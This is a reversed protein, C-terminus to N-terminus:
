NVRRWGNPIAFGKADLAALEEEVIPMVAEIFAAPMEHQPGPNHHEVLNKPHYTGASIGLFAEIGALVGYRSARLKMMSSSATNM